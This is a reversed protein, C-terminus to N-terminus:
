VITITSGIPPIITAGVANNTLTGPTGSVTMYTLDVLTTTSTGGVIVEQINGVATAASSDFTGGSINLDGTISVGGTWNIISSGLAGTQTVDIISGATADVTVIGASVTMLIAPVKSITSVVGSGRSEYSNIATLTSDVISIATGQDILSEFTGTGELTLPCGSNIIYCDKTPGSADSLHIGDETIGGAALTGYSELHLYSDNASNIEIFMAQATANPAGNITLRKDAQFSLILYNPTGSNYDGIDVTYGPGITVNGLDVASNDYGAIAFASNMIEIDDGAIPVGSPSWNGATNWDDGSAGVAGVWSKTAM